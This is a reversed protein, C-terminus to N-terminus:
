FAYLFRCSSILSRKNFQSKIGFDYNIYKLEYFNTKQRFLFVYLVIFQLHVNTKTHNFLVFFYANLTSSESLILNRIKLFLSSCRCKVLSTYRNLKLLNNHLVLFIINIFM